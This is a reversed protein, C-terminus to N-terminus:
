PFTTLPQAQPDWRAPAVLGQTQRKWDIRSDTKLCLFVSLPALSIAPTFGRSLLVLSSQLLLSIETM